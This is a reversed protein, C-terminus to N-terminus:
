RPLHWQERCFEKLPSKLEGDTWYCDRMGIMHYDVYCMSQSRTKVWHVADGHRALHTCAIYFEELGAKKLEEGTPHYREIREEWPKVGHAVMQYVEYMCFGFGIVSLVVLIWLFGKNVNAERKPLSKKTKM